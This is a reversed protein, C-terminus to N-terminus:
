NATITCPDGSVTGSNVNYILKSWETCEKNGRFLTLGDGGIDNNIMKMFELINDDLYTSSNTSNFKLEYKDMFEKMKKVDNGDEGAISQAFVRFRGINNVKILYPFDSYSTMGMFLNATDSAFGQLFTRALMIIDKPSFINNNGYNHCHLLGDVKTGAAFNLEIIPSGTNGQVSAYDNNIRNNVIYGKEFGANLAQPKNLSYFKGVFNPDNQLIRIYDCPAAYIPPPPGCGYWPCGGGGGTGGGGTGGGGTGGGGTGGGGVTIYTCEEISVTLPCTYQGCYSCIYTITVCV